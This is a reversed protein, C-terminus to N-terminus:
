VVCKGPPFRLPPFQGDSRRGPFRELSGDSRVKWVRPLRRRCPDCAVQDERTAIWRKAYFAQLALDRQDIEGAVHALEALNILGPSDMRRLRFKRLRNMRRAARDAVERL